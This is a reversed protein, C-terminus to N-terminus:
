NRERERETGELARPFLQCAGGRLKCLVDHALDAGQVVVQRFGLHGIGFVVAVVPADRYCSTRLSFDRLSASRAMM